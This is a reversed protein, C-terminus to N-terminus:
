MVLAGVAMAALASLSGWARLSEAGSLNGQGSANTGGNGSPPTPGSGVGPGTTPRPGDVVVTNTVTPTAPTSPNAGAGGVYPSVGLCQGVAQIKLPFAAGARQIDQLVRVAIESTQPTIDHELAVFGPQAQHWTRVRDVVGGVPGETDHTDRDAPATTWMINTYGLASAVARVRDDM